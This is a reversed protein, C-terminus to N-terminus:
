DSLPARKRWWNPPRGTLRRISRSMHAQDAFGLEHAVTVLPLDTTVLLRWAARVKARWRYSAPAIGFAATFHRTITRSSVANTAAWDTIRAADPRELAAAFRDPLDDLMALPTTSARLTEGLSSPDETYRRLVDEPDAVVGTRLTLSDAVSLPLNVVVAGTAGVHDAHASFPSHIVVHGPAALYRGGDGAEAYGGELVLAAYPAAHDHWGLKARPSLTQPLIATALKM